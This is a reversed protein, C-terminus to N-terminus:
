EQPTELSSARDELSAQPVRRPKERTETLFDWLEGITAFARREETGAREITGVLARTGPKGTRYIRVIYSKVPLGDKM